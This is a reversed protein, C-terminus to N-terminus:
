CDKVVQIVNLTAVYPLILADQKTVVDIIIFFHLKLVYKRLKLPITVKSKQVTEESENYKNVLINTILVFSNKDFILLYFM